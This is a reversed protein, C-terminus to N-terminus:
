RGVAWQWSGVVWQGRDDAEKRETLKDAKNLNRYSFINKKWQMM